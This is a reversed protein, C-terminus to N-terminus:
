AKESSQAPFFVKSLFITDARIQSLMLTMKGEHILHGIWSNSMFCLDVACFWQEAVMVSWFVRKCDKKARM